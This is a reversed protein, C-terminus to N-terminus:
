ELPNLESNSADSSGLSSANDISRDFRRVLRIKRIPVGRVEPVVFMSNALEKVGRWTILFLFIAAPIEVVLAFVLSQVFGGRRATTVDFWADVLLLTGAATAFLILLARGRWAAWAALLLMVIQAVDLGVWALDWHNAVYHRPLRWGIYITWATELLAASALLTLLPDRPLRLHLPLAV